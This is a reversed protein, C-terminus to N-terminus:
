APGGSLGALIRDFCASLDRATAATAAVYFDPRLIVYRAGTEAQWQEYTDDLTRVDFGDGPGLWLMQGGLAALQTQQAASLLGETKCGLALMFWGQGVAQDFRDEHAGFAVVGQPSLEGAGQTDCWLGPGLKVLDGTIPAHDRAALDAIMRADRAAAKAPDSICIIEGLDQSFQIYHKAHAIRESEYSELVRADFHGNLLGSL